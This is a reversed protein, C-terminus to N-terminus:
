RGRNARKAAAEHFALTGCYADTRKCAPCTVARPEGSRQYNPHHQTQHLEAMNPLCAVREKGDAVHAFHVVEIMNGREDIQQM